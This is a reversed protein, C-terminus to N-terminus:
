YIYVRKGRPVHATCRTQKHRAHKNASAFHHRFLFPRRPSDPAYNSRPPVTRHPDSQIICTQLGSAHCAQTRRARERRTGYVSTGPTHQLTNVGALAIALWEEVSLILAASGTSRLLQTVSVATKRLLKDGM